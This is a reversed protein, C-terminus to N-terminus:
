HPDHQVGSQARGPHGDPGASLKFVGLSRGDYAIGVRPVTRTWKVLDTYPYDGAPWVTPFDPTADHSQEPLYVHQYDWRVGLNMTVRDTLRWTDTLYIATEQELDSPYVPMDSVQLQVPTGSVGNVRDFVLMYNGLEPRNTPYYWAEHDHYYSVGAKFQHRGGLFNPPFFSYAAAGLYRVQPVLAPTR